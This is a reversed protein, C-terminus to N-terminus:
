EISAIECHDVVIKRRGVLDRDIVREASNTTARFHGVLHVLYDELARRVDMDLKPIVGDMANAVHEPSDPPFSARITVAVCDLVQVDARRSNESKVVAPPSLNVM